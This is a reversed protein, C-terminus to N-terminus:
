WHMVVKFQCEAPYNETIFDSYTVYFAISGVSYDYSFTETWLNNGDAYHMVFPLPTQVPTNGDYQILYIMVSGKDFIYQDLYKDEVVCRFYSNDTNVGGVREWDKVTIIYSDWNQTEGSGGPRNNWNSDSDNDCAGCVVVLLLLFLLKKM